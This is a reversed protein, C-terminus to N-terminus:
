FSEYTDELLKRQEVSLTLADRQDYVAKIRSFLPENLSIKNSHATQMASIRTSLAMLEDTNESGTLTYFVASVDHLLQGSYDLAAITNDFTPLAKNAAIAKIEREHQAFGKEFAPMFHELKVKDFPLTEHPNGYKKAFFPNAATAVTAGSLLVSMIILHLIRM